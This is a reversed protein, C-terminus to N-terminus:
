SSQSAGSQTSMKRRRLLRYVVPIVFLSLLPATIMGGVMPAAIRQMVESGTGHSWMIPLLGAIIVSVTMALPRVRLVPGERVAEDLLEVTPPRGAALRSEWAHKLYVLMVVGFEAAVGALAIFGVGTAISVDHGLLWILWFGGIVAFPLTAMILLAEDVRRFTLYLLVFIVLLTVPVVIRLRAQARELYEFQGSWSVSYGGPLKVERAVRERMEEVASQLDRGRLDVYVWGSLRANESRLMPPGDTIRLKAITGLTIQAGSMTVVPLQRLDALSDRLERPYRVNIPFRQLGEVTEAITEGGIASAIVSQVDEINMGYRAAADRDINVEIYRGGTLREAIASTVGPVERVVHEIRLAIRDIVAPDTGAIKVGVPSKIGTALMDIRNRIPPIWINTLGPINLLQDMEEILRDTTMGPRWQERPKFQITTEMMELPAPDTATEARGMKGFVREVEPVTKILRDTQQLLQAAKGASLGPLASPMYLLDGEDLPPMFEGGVRLVPISTLALLVLSVILTTKPFRLVRNLAPRYARVLWRNLPNHEERPIRGRILYGMLVPVLTVALGAAAAMAYTKTYALPSFLRGEQAELTFIPLFSFTIILLSFFLAPGVQVSAREVLSWHEPATLELGPHDDHWREIQKHVNEIMVIAADVMAGIAIAIGGLSMINANVGQYYMVIFAMMVGLPLSVIAVFSSRLHFLFAFCVLAVVVFEEVLKRTLNSVSRQILESRDYTEVIEVGKPLGPKIEELKRKVAAITELANTGYRLVIVGGAVEGEGDLEAIGRRLEPGVQLHAVDALQVPVGASGTRLPIKRFDDLNRLYGTARVMYEAEGLELVSGGTAQNAGRIADIVARHTIGYARLRDPLLVVQYQRVQGGLSAVEAVNPVAKLEYKLFWDQIARLKSLDHRGSRDVLAYEYIWGVGTADPGLSPQVGRPLRGQVQNLYELVRSRAWYLDTGDEFLVYVFSDGFFSYGRVTKAGPVSMMTTTLPYTVQDEVIRPAQGPYPTRIIVQVDSLDPLADVPTRAVAFVGWATVLATALLVLFRNELSWRILRAIM